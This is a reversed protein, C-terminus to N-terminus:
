SRTKLNLIKRLFALMEPEDEFTLRVPVVRTMSALADRAPGGTL